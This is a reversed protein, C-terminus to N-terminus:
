RQAVPVLLISGVHLQRAFFVLGNMKKIRYMQFIAFWKPM